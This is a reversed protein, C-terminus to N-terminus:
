LGQLALRYEELQDQPKIVQVPTIIGREIQHGIECPARWPRPQEEYPSISWHVNKDRLMRQLLHLLIEQYM